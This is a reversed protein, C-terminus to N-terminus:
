EVMTTVANVGGVDPLVRRWQLHGLPAAFLEGNSLVAFLEDRTQVFREVMHRRWPADLGDSAARWTQGGDFTEEIRGQRDVADAPGLVLHAPDAPDLWVARSYGGYLLTWTRGGDASSYFGGGTPAFVLDPSSPHVAISHVDPHILSAPPVGFKPEGNSGDCLRWTEGADDSRLAAGVEVAAYARSGHVAFGRVCGAGTSYPLWWGQAERLRTVVPRESWTRAGDRSVFIGAPETGAFECDSVDPHFALWRVYRTALGTSAEHWTEAGDDSRLVGDETGALVVGERAIVSTIRRGALGRDVDRWEAGDREAVVAGDATALYLRAVM